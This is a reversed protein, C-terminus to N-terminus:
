KILSLLTNPAYEKRLYVPYRKEKMMIDFSLTSVYKVEPLFVTNIDDAQFYFTDSVIKQDRIIYEYEFRYKIKDIQQFLTVEEEKWFISDAKAFDKELLYELLNLQYVAKNKEEYNDYQKKILFLVSGAISIVIGTVVLAITLESITYAKIKNM